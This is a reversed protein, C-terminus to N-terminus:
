YNSELMESSLGSFHSSIVGCLLFRTSEAGQFSIVTTLSPFHQQVTIKMFNCRLRDRTIRGNCWIIIEEKENEVCLLIGDYFQDKKIERTMKVLIEKEEWCLLSKIQNEFVNRQERWRWWCDDISESIWDM